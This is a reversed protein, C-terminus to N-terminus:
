EEQKRMHITWTDDPYDGRCKGTFIWLDPTQTQTVCCEKLYQLGESDYDMVAPSGLSEASRTIAVEVDWTMFVREKAEDVLVTIKAKSIDM